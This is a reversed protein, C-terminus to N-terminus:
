ECNRHAFTGHRLFSVVHDRTARSNMIFTHVNPVEVWDAMDQLKTRELAVIGDNPEDFTVSQGSSGAIVGFPVSPVPLQEYFAEDGLKQGADGAWMRFLANDRLRMALRAPQNPPAIMVIHRLGEPYGVSFGLRAIINGLSHGVLHFRPTEVHDRLYTILSESIGQLSANSARYPFNLTRFGARRLHMQLVLLSARTRGLGHLLVVTEAPQPSEASSM